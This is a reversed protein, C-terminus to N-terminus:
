VLVQLDYLLLDIIVFNTFLCPSTVPHVQTKTSCKPKRCYYQNTESLNIYAFSINDLYLEVLMECWNISCALPESSNCFPKHREYERLFLLLM